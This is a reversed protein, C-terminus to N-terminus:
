RTITAAKPLMLASIVNTTCFVHFDAHELREPGTRGANSEQKNSLASDDPNQSDRASKDEAHERQVVPVLEKMEHVVPQSEVQKRCRDIWNAPSGARITGDSTAMM